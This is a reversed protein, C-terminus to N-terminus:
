RFLHEQERGIIRVPLELAVIRHRRVQRLTEDRAHAGVVREFGKWPKLQIGEAVQRISWCKSFNRSSTGCRLRLGDSYTFSCKQNVVWGISSGSSAFCRRESISHTPM